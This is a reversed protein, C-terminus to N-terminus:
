LISINISLIIGKHRKTNNAITTKSTPKPTKNSSYRVIRTIIDINSKKISKTNIMSRIKLYILTLVTGSNKRFYQNSIIATKGNKKTNLSNSNKVLTISILLPALNSDMSLDVFNSFYVFGKDSTGLNKFVM